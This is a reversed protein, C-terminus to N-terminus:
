LIEKIEINNENQLDVMVNDLQVIPRSPQNNHIFVIKGVEGTSLKVQNGLYNHAINELFIFLYKTDLLGYSEQEFIKIVKFPSFKKHYTRDSTMADYIDAIAIIKGFDHIQENKFGFPYGSGDFKEHHSLVGMKVEHPLKQNKIMNYGLLTHQKIENFEEETLKGPKNLIKKDIKVKGIDHLLGAVTLNEIQDKPLHLWHGFINCLMSVNMLHTYTHDDSQKIHCLFNFLDSKTELTNILEESISFLEKINIDKGDSICDLKDKLFVQSDNYSNSFKKYSVSEKHNDKNKEPTPIVNSTNTYDRVVISLIQYLQMRFIHKQTIVTDKPILLMGSSNIVDEDLQMGVQVQDLGIRKQKYEAIVM